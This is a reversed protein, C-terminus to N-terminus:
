GNYIDNLSTIEPERKALKSIAGATAGPPLILILRSCSAGKGIRGAGHLIQRTALFCLMKGVSSAHFSIKGPANSTEEL